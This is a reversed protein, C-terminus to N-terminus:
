WGFVMSRFKFKRNSGFKNNISPQNAFVEFIYYIYVVEVGNVMEEVLETARELISAIHITHSALDHSFFWRIVM